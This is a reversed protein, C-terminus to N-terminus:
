WKNSLLNWFWFILLAAANGLLGFLAWETKNTKSKLYLHRACWLNLIFILLLGIWFNPPLDKRGLILASLAGLYSTAVLIILFKRM